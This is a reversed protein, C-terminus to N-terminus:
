KKCKLKKRKVINKLTNILEKFENKYFIYNIIITIFSSIIFIMLANIIWNIYNVNEVYPLYNSIFIIILTEIVILLIKKVSKM